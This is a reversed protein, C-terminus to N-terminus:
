INIEFTDYGQICKEGNCSMFEINGKLKFPTKNLIKIRQKFIAKNEFYKTDMEFVAEYVTHGKPESMNGILTYNTLSEFSFVTPLPGNEPVNVSYLHWTEDITATFVIDYEKESIKEISTAWKVPEIIQSFGSVSIFLFLFIIKKMISTYLHKIPFLYLAHDKCINKFLDCFTLFKGKIKFM